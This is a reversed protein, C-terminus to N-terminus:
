IQHETRMVCVLIAHEHLLLSSILTEMVFVACDERARPLGLVCAVRGLHRSKEIHMIAFDVSCRLVSTAPGTPRGLLEYRLVMIPELMPQRHGRM